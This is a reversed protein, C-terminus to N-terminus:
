PIDQNQCHTCECGNDVNVYLATTIDHNHDVLSMFNHITFYLDDLQNKSVRYALLDRMLSAHPVAHHGPLISKFVWGLPCYRVAQTYQDVYKIHESSYTRGVNWDAELMRAIEEGELVDVMRM